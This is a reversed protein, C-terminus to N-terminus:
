ESNGRAQVYTQPSNAGRPQAAAPIRRMAADETAGIREDLISRERRGQAAQNGAAWSMGPIRFLRDLCSGAILSERSSQRSRAVTIRGVADMASSPKM